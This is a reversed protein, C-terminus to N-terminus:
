SGAAPPKRAQTGALLAATSPYVEKDIAPITRLKGAAENFASASARGECRALLLKTSLGAISESAHNANQDAQANRLLPLAEGCRNKGVLFDALPVMWEDASSIRKAHLKEGLDYAARFHAEADADDGALEETSALVRLAVAVQATGDGSSSRADALAAQAMSVAETYKRESALAKALNERVKVLL